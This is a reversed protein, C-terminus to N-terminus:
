GMSDSPNPSGKAIMSVSGDLRAGEEVELAKSSLEGSFQGTRQITTRAAEIRGEVRGSCLVRGVRFEGNLRGSEAVVLTGDSIIEGEFAGAIQAFGSFEFRGVFSTGEGLYATIQSINELKGAGNEKRKKGFM